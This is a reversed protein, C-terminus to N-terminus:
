LRVREGAAELVCVVAEIKGERGGCAFVAAAVTTVRGELTGYALAPERRPKGDEFCGRLMAVLAPSGALLESYRRRSWADPGILNRAAASAQVLAGEANFLLVAASIEQLLAGLTREGTEARREAERLQEQLQKEQKKLHAIASQFAAAAFAAENEARPAQAKLSDESRAERFVRHLFYILVIFVALVLLGAGVLLAVEKLPLQPNM